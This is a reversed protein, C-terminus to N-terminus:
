FCTQLLWRNGNRGLDTSSSFVGRAVRGGLVGSEWFSFLEAKKEVVWRSAHHFVQFTESRWADLDQDRTAILSMGLLKKNSTTIAEVRIAIAELRTAEELGEKKNLRPTRRKSIHM